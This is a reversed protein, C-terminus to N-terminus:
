NGNKVTGKSNDHNETPDEPLKWTIRRPAHTYRLIHWRPIGRCGASNGISNRPIRHSGGPHWILDRNDGRFALHAEARQWRIDHPGMDFMTGYSGPIAELSPHERSNTRDGALRRSSGLVGVLELLSNRNGGSVGVGLGIYEVM